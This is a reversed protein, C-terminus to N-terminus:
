PQGKTIGRSQEWLSPKIPKVPAPQAALAQKISDKADEFGGAGYRTAKELAKLALKLAEDKTHAM